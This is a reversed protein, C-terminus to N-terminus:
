RFCFFKGLRKFFSKKSHNNNDSSASPAIPESACKIYKDFIESLIKLKWRYEEEYYVSDIGSKYNKIVNNVERMRAEFVSRINFQPSITIDRSIVVDNFIKDALGDNPFGCLMVKSINESKEFTSWEAFIVKYNKPCGINTDNLDIHLYEWKVVNFIEKNKLFSLFKISLESNRLCVKKLNPLQVIMKITAEASSAFNGESLHLESLTSPFSVERKEPFQNYYQLHMIELNPIEKVISNMLSETICNMSFFRRLIYEIEDQDVIEYMEICAIFETPYVKHLEKLASIIKVESKGTFSLKDALDNFFNNIREEKSVTTNYKFNMALEGIPLYKSEWRENSDSSKMYFDKEFSIKQFRIDVSSISMSAVSNSVSTSSPVNSGDQEKVSNYASNEDSVVNSDDVTNERSLNELLGVIENFLFNFEVVLKESSFRKARLYEQLLNLNDVTHIKCQGFCNQIDSLVIHKRESSSTCTVDRIYSQSILMVAFAIQCWKSTGLLSLVKFVVAM